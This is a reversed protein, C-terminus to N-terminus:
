ATVTTGQRHYFFLYGFKPKIVKTAQALVGVFHGISGLPNLDVSRINLWQFKGSYDVPNFTIGAAGSLPDPILSQMVEKHLILAVEGETTAADYGSNISVVGSSASFPRQRVATTGVGSYRPSFDDIIHYFGKYSVSIGLPALREDARSSERFDTASGASTTTDVESRLSFSLEPSCVLGFVPRGGEMGWAKRGAGARVLATHARDLTRQGLIYGAATPDDSTGEVTDGGATAATLATDALDPSASTCPVRFNVARMYEDRYRDEWAYRVGEALADFAIALQDAAQTAFRLEEVNIEPSWVVSRELAYPVIRKNWQVQNVNASGASGDAVNTLPGRHDEQSDNILAGVGEETTSHDQGSLLNDAGAFGGWNMVTSNGTSDTPIARDYILTQLRYGSGKPFTGKDILDIWPSTHVYESHLDSGIRNAEQALITDIDDNGDTRTGVFTSM